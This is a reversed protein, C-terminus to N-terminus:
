KHILSSHTLAIAIADYEDDLIKPSTKPLDVLLHIMKSIMTKDSSGDSGVAVKVQMPSYEFVPLNNKLAEYMIIGRAESVRM